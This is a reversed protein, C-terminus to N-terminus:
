KNGMLVPLEVLIDERAKSGGPIDSKEKGIELRAFVVQRGNKEAWGM